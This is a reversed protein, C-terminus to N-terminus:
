GTVDEEYHALNSEIYKVARKIAARFSGKNDDSAELQLARKHFLIFQWWLSLYRDITGAELCQLAETLVM